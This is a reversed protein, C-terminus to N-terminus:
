TIGLRCAKNMYQLVRVRQDVVMLIEQGQRSKSKRLWQQSGIKWIMLSIQHCLQVMWQCPLLHSHREWISTTRSIHLRTQQIAFFGWTSYIALNMVIVTCWALETSGIRVRADWINGNSRTQIQVNLVLKFSRRSLAIFTLGLANQETKWRIHEEM